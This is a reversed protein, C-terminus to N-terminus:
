PLCLRVEVIGCGGGLDHVAEIIGAFVADGALLTDAWGPDPDAFCLVEDVGRTGVIRGDVCQVVLEEGTTLRAGGVVDAAACRSMSVPSSRSFLTGATLEALRRDMAKKFNAKARRALDLGM